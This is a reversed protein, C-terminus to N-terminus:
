SEVALGHCTSQEDGLNVLPLKGIIREEFIKRM